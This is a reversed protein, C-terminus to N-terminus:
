KWGVGAIGRRILEANIEGLHHQIHGILYHRTESLSFVSLMGWKNSGNFTRPRVNRLRIMIDGM